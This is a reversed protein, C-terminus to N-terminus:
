ILFHGGIEVFVFGPTACPFQRVAPELGGASTEPDGDGGDRAFTSAGEARTLSDDDDGVSM